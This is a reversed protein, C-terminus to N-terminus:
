RLFVPACSPADCAPFRVYVEDLNFMSVDIGYRRFRAILEADSPRSDLWAVTESALGSTLEDFSTMFREYTYGDGRQQRLRQLVQSFEDPSRQSLEADIILAALAGGGYILHWNKLKDAGAAALSIGPSLAGSLRYRRILNAIRQEIEATELQGTRSRIKLTLYDTLGEKVWELDSVEDAGLTNWLHMLEHALTHSWSVEDAASLPIAIRMAFSERFAGGDSMYDTMFYINFRDGPAAGWFETYAAPLESLIAEVQPTITALRQDIIWTLDLGGVSSRRPSALGVAFMNQGLSWSDDVHSVGDIVRWPATVQWREPLEFRVEVPCRPMEWDQLFFAHGAFVFTGDFYDAVEDKGPGGAGWDVESHDAHLAYRLEVAGSGGISWGGEGVYEIDIRRAHEDFAVLDSVSASQGEPREPVPFYFLDVRHSPSTFRARVDFVNNGSYRVDYRAIPGNCEPSPQAWAVEACFLYFLALVPIAFPKLRM